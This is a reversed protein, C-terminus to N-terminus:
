GWRKKFGWMPSGYVPTMYGESSQTVGAKNQTLLDNKNQQQMIELATATEPGFKGDVGFNPLIEAGYQAVMSEQLKKVDETSANQWDTEGYKVKPDLQEVAKEADAKAKQWEFGSAAQGYSKFDDWFSM